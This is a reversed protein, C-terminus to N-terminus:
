SQPRLRQADKASLAMLTFNTAGAVLELIQVAYFTTDFEGAQAKVFLFVACPILILIGNAAIWPMRRRKRVIPAYTSKGGLKMGSIGTCAVAPIFVAFAYLISKKVLLVTHHTGFLESLVSSLWFCAIFGMSLFAATKHLKGLSSREM